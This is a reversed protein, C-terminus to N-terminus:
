LPRRATRVRRNESVAGEGGGEALREGRYVGSLAQAQAALDAFADAAADDEVGPIKDATQFRGIFEDAALRGCGM